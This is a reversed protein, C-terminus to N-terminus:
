RWSSSTAAGPLDGGFRFFHSELYTLLVILPITILIIRRERRRRNVEKAFDAQQPSTM